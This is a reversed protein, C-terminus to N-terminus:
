NFKELNKEFVNMMERTLSIGDDHAPMEDRHFWQATALEQTDMTITDDGDLECFFGLLLNSDIGWPQSKYYTINRVQLGVEEMVERAVTEEATEGIETFGALLAYKKYERDAYKSMLIRDGDTVCIIVAPAIKPFIMNGCFSCRMMREKEDHVTRHGCRGCFQNDRYWIHLHWATMVAFCVEKSIMQRLTRVVTFSFGSLDVAVGQELVDGLVLFYDERDISFLYRTKLGSRRDKIQGYTPLLLKDEETRQILVNNEHFCLIKSNETLEKDIYSNIFQHPFIDQIM